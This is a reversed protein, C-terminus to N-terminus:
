PSTSWRGAPAPTGYLGTQQGVRDVLDSLGLDLRTSRATYEKGLILLAPPSPLPPSDNPPHPLLPNPYIFPNATLPSILPILLPLLISFYHFSLMPFYSVLWDPVSSVFYLLQLFLKLSLFLLIKYCNVIWCTCLWIGWKFDGVKEEKRLCQKLHQDTMFSSIACVWCRLTCIAKWCKGRWM